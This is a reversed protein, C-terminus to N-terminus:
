HRWIIIGTGIGIAAEIARVGVTRAASHPV